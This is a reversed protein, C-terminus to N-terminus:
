IDEDDRDQLSVILCTGEPSPEFWLDLEDESYDYRIDYTVEAEIDELEGFGTGADSTIDNREEEVTRKLFDALEAKHEETADIIVADNVFERFQMSLIGKADEIVQLPSM